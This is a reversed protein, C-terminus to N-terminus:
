LRRVKMCSTYEQLSQSVHVVTVRSCLEYKSDNSAIWIIDRLGEDELICVPRWATAIRKATAQTLKSSTLKDM